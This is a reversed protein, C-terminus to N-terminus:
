VLVPYSLLAAMSGANSLAFLRYPMVGPRDGAWWAQLLPSTASLLFYPLGVTALLLLLIRLAPDEAGSPKWTNGPLVPLVLLSLALLTLHVLAQTQRRFYRVVGHAYLYGVLLGVQFFALCVSWVAASGGFWPLIIKAIIPEIQFLLFASLFITVAYILM